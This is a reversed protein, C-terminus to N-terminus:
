TEKWATATEVAFARYTRMPRGLRERLKADHGADASMGDEQFRRMMMRMDYAMWSPMLEVAAKGTFHPVDSFRDAHIASLYVLNTVGAERALDLTIV